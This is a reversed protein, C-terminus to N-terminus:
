DSIGRYFEAAAGPAGDFAVRGNHMVLVRQFNDILELDHTVVIARQDLDTIAAQLRRRNRRDLMTTPEDFVITSPKMVLVSALAVMQKEGGSLAYCERDRLHTIGLRDLIGDVRAAIETGSLGLNKAGFALDEAVLPMVIQNEPNQFVFGVQRRIRKADKATTLEGVQVTGRTPLLLGNLLRVLTSKGSGNLGIVAIRHDNLRLDLSRLVEQGERIVSVGTLRM